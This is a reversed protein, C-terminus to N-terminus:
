VFDGQSCSSPSLSGDSPAPKETGAAYWSAIVKDECKGSLSGGELDYVAFILEVAVMKAHHPHKADYSDAINQVLSPDDAMADAQGMIDAWRLGTKQEGLLMRTGNANVGEVRYIEIQGDPAVTYSFMRFPAAPFWSDDGVFTTAVLLTSLGFTAILWAIRARRSIRHTQM